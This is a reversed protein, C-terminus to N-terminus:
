AADGFLPGAPEARWPAKVGSLFLMHDLIGVAEAADHRHPEIGLARCAQMALDKLNASRTGRPQKGIFHRRWTAADVAGRRRIDKAECYSDAHAALGILVFQTEPTSHASGMGLLLPREWRVEQLPEVVHMDNMRQHLRLFARAPTTLENGLEWTGCKPLDHGPAWWAWGASRKSLDLALYAM